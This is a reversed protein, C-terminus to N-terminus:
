EREGSLLRARVEYLKGMIGAPMVVKAATIALVMLALDVRWPMVKVIYKLRVTMAPWAQALGKRRKYTSSTQRYSLLHQPINGFVFGAQFLNAWMGLDECVLNVPYRYGRRFVRARFVVTPHLLPPALPLVRRLARNSTAKRVEGFSRGHEDILMGWSGVVDVDPNQGLYREQVTFRDHRCIDDVDMRYVFECSPDEIAVDILANLVPAFGHGKPFHLVRFSVADALSNLYTEVEAPVPDEVGVLVRHSGSAQLVSDVAEKMYDLRDTRYVSMVVFSSM